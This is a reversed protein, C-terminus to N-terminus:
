ERTNNKMDILGSNNTAKKNIEIKNSAITLTILKSPPRGKGM